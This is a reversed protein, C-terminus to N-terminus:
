EIIMKQLHPHPRAIGSAWRDITTPAVEFHSAILKKDLKKELAEKVITSFQLSNKRNEVIM